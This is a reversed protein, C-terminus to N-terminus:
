PMAELPLLVLEASLGLLVAAGIGRARAEPTALAVAQAGRFAAGGPGVPIDAVIDLVADAGGVVVLRDGSFHTCAARAGDGDDLPVCEFLSEVARGPVAAEALAGSAVRAIAPRLLSGVVLGDAVVAPTGPALDGADIVELIALTSPDVRVLAGEGLAAVTADHTPGLPGTCSAWLADGHWALGQPNVCPLTTTGAVRAGDGDHELRALLGPGLLPPREPSLGPELLNTFAVLAVGARAVVPQPARPVMRTVETDATGDGDVDVPASLHLPAELELPEAARVEAIVSAACYDVLAVSHRGQLTVWAREGDVAVAWPTAARGQEPAFLVSGVLTGCPLELVDLRGDGSAPVLAVPAGGCAGLAVDNPVTGVPVAATFRAACMGPEDVCAAGLGGALLVVTVGDRATM